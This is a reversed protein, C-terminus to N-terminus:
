FNHLIKLFGGVGNSFIKVMIKKKRWLNRIEKHMFKIEQNHNRLFKNEGQSILQFAEISNMTRECFKSESNSLEKRRTILILQQSIYKM